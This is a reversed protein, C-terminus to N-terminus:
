RIPVGSIAWASAVSTASPLRREVLIRGTSRVVLPQNLSVESLLDLDVRSAAPLVVDSLGAIPVEGDGGVAFVSVTREVNDLNLVVLARDVPVAPGAPIWWTTPLLGDTRVPVGPTISSVRQGDGYRTLVREVVLESSDLTSVVAGHAGEPLGSVTGSDVTAVRGAPVIVSARATGPDMGEALYVVSAEIDSTGTNFLVFREAVGPIKDGDAFWWQAATTPVALSMSPAGRVDDDARQFRGVVVGGRVARVIVGVREDDRAGAGPAAVDVVRVGRGPVPLGTFTTRIGDDTHLAVDAVVTDTGPNSLVVVNRAEGVTYNDALYWESALSTTCPTVSVLTGDTSPHFMRQEVLGTGGVIEVVVAVWDGTAEADVDISVQGRATIDVVREAGGDVAGLFGIRARVDAESPNTIVVSGGVGTDGSAPVGPCYWATSLGTVAPVSPIWAPEAMSFVPAVPEPDERSVGTIIVVVSVVMAFLVPHRRNIRLRRRRREGM